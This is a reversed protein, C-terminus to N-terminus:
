EDLGLNKLARKFSAPDNEALEALRLLIAARLPAPILRRIQAVEEPSIEAGLFLSRRTADKITDPSPKRGAGRDLRELKQFTAISEPDVQWRGQGDKHGTLYGTKKLHYLVTTYEIGLIEAAEKPTM